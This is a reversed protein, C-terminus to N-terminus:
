TATACSTAASSRAGAPRTRTSSRRAPPPRARKGLPLPAHGRLRELRLERGEGQGRRAFDIEEIADQGVDGIAIDGTSRDFSFRFPNRLGYSYVEPKGGRAPDIRLIKGLLSRRSQANRLRDGGGGGDGTSIYLLGDPGFQLQGGNHNAFRRHGIRVLSRATTEQARDADDPDTRYEFVRLDGSPRETYFVYFKRSTEYDPAFAM